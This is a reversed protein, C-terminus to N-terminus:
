IVFPSKCVNRCAHRGADALGRDMACFATAAMTKKQFALVDDVAPQCGFMKKHALTLSM